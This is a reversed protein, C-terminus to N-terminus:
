AARDEATLFRLSQRPNTLADFVAQVTGAVEPTLLGSVPVMGDRSRGLHFSRTDFTRTSPATGDPNLVEGWVAAQEATVAPPVPPLAASDLTPAAGIAACVLELEAPLFRSYTDTPAGVKMTSLAQTIVVASDVGLRGSTLGRRVLDYEAPLRDGTLTIGPRTQTGLKLRARATTASVRAVRELLDRPSTCGVRDALTTLGAGRRCRDAVEGAALVRAADMMRGVDELSGVVGLLDHESAGDLVGAAALEALLAANVAAAERLRARLAEM